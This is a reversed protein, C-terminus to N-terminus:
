PVLELIRIRATRPPNGDDRHYQTDISDAHQVLDLWQMSGYVEAAAVGNIKLVIDGVTLGIEAAHSSPHVDAILMGRQARKLLFGATRWPPATIPTDTERAFRVRKNRGDFTVAFNSLFPTGMIMEGCAEIVGVTPRPVSYRGLRLTADLRGVSM